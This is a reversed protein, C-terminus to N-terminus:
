PNAVHDTLPLASPVHDGERTIIKELITYAKAAMTVHDTEINLNLHTHVDDDFIQFVVYNNKWLARRYERWARGGYRKPLKLMFAGPRPMMFRGGFTALSRAHSWKLDDTEGRPADISRHAVHKMRFVIFKRITPILTDANGIVMKVFDSIAFYYFAEGLVSSDAV